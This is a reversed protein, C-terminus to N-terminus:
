RRGGRRQPSRRWLAWLVVVFIIAGVTGPAVIFATAVVALLIIRFELSTRM